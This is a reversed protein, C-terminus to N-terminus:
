RQQVKYTKRNTQTIKWTDLIRMKETETYNKHLM